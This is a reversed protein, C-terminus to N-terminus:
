RKGCLLGAVLTIRWIPHPQRDLSRLLNINPQFYIPESHLMATFVPFWVQAPWYPVIVIGRAHDDQLKRLVRLVLAFPPFAYCFWQSWDVTFAAVTISDSDRSWSIIAQMECENKNCIFRNGARGM